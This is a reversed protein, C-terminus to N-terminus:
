PCILLSAKMKSTQLHCNFNNEIINNNFSNSNKSFTITYLGEPMRDQRGDNDDDEEEEKVKSSDKILDDPSIILFTNVGRSFPGMGHKKYKQPIRALHLSDRHPFGGDISLPFDKESGNQDPLEVHGNQFPVKDLESKVQTTHGNLNFEKIKCNQPTEDKFAKLVTPLPEDQGQYVEKYFSKLVDSCLEEVGEQSPLNEM